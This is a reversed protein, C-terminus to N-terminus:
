GAPDSAFTFADAFFADDHLGCNSVFDHRAAEIMAPAGCAYVEHGSLDPIDEIVARHVLGTRGGWGEQPGAESLVPIYRFGPLMREWSRALEDLYLGELHRAGWYLTMRRDIGSAIAHEALSKIPAFGTGGALLIAPRNSEERLGFSGLPGEFRLIDREKMNEFVHETFRGGSIRRVHLELHDAGEPANAISFSRRRGEPLLFDIYQGAQFRFPETAPLKVEVIMVDPAVRRLRQVRCPLKKVRIDGARTVSRAELVLDSRPRARCFLALGAAREVPSLASESFTGPDLEGSIV